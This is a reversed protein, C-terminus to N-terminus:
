FGRLAPRGFRVRWSGDPKISKDRARFSAPQKTAVPVFDGQAGLRKFQQDRQRRGFSAREVLGFKQVADPAVDMDGLIAQKLGDLIRAAGEAIALPTQKTIM